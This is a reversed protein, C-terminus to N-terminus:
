YYDTYSFHTPVFSLVQFTKFPFFPYVFVFFILSSWIEIWCRVRSFRFKKVFYSNKHVHIGYGTYFTYFLTRIQDM